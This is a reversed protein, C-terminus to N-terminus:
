KRVINSYTILLLVFGLLLVLQGVAYFVQNFIIFTFLLHAFFLFVFSMIVLLTNKNQTNLYSKYYNLVIFGLLVSSTLYFVVYRFNAVWSILLILYVFLGIQSVEYYKKLRGRGKQSVFFLLLWGGLMSAMQLFFGLHYFLVSYERNVGLAPRILVDAATRVEGFYVASSTLAKIFISLSLLLFALSFYQFRSEGSMRYVNWSYGAILLTVLLAIAEFALDWGQFWVPTPFLTAMFSKNYVGKVM